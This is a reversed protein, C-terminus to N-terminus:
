SSLVSSSIPSKKSANGATFFSFFGAGCAGAPPRSPVPFPYPPDPPDRAGKIMKRPARPASYLTMSSLLGLRVRVHSASSFSYRTRVRTCVVARNYGAPAAASAGGCAAGRVSRTVRSSVVSLVPSRAARAAHTRTPRRTSTRRVRPRHCRRVRRRRPWPADARPEGVRRQGLAAARFRVAVAFLGGRFRVAVAFLGGRRAALRARASRPSRSPPAERARAAACVPRTQRAVGGGARAAAAAAAALEQGGRDGVRRRGSTIVARPKQVLSAAVTEEFPQLTPRRLLTPSRDTPPRQRASRTHVVHAAIAALPAAAPSGRRKRDLPMIHSAACVIHTGRPVRPGARVEGHREFSADGVNVM